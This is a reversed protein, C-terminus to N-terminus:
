ADCLSVDHEKVAQGLANLVKVADRRGALLGGHVFGNMNACFAEGSLFVKPLDPCSLPSLPRGAAAHDEDDSMGWASYAGYSLPDVSHRTIHFAIPAAIEVGPHQSRLKQLLLAEAEEDGMSEWLTSEPDGLDFFLTNSGATNLSSHGLNRVSPLDGGNRGSNTQAWKYVSHNWWVCDEAWQAFIKTYNAM